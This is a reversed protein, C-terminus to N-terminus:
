LLSGIKQLAIYLPNGITNAILCGTSVKDQIILTSHIRTPPNVSRYVKPIHLVPFSVKIEATPDEDLEGLTRLFIM